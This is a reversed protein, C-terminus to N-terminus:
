GFGSSVTLLTQALCAESGAPVPYSFSSAVVPATEASLWIDLFPGWASLILPICIVGCPAQATSVSETLVAPNEWNQETDENSTM